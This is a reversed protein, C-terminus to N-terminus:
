FVLSEDLDRYVSETYTSLINELFLCPNTVSFGPSGSVITVGVPAYVRFVNRPQICVGLWM